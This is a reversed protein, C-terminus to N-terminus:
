GGFIFSGAGTPGPSCVFTAGAHPERELEEAGLRYSASTVYLETLSPGGFACSTVQSVPFRIEGVEEGAESFCRVAGGGFCAVWLNGEEDVTMGDPMGCRKDLSVVRRRNGIEGNEVNFDFVDVGQTGSDIFFLRDGSRSWAMGNAITVGSLVQTCSWDTGIRYLAGAGASFDFAMTGAYLRGRVDCKADNMRNGPRDAEIPLILDFGGGADSVVAIGQRVALVLGGEGRPIAAGVEQGVSFSSVVDRDPDYRFVTGSTVDVFLLSKTREDWHPGEGVDASIDVALDVKVGGFRNM